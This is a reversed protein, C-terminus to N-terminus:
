RDLNKSESVGVSGLEVKLLVRMKLGFSVRRILTMSVRLLGRVWEVDTGWQVEKM